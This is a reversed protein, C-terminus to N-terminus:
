TTARWASLASMPQQAHPVARCIAYWVTKLVTIGILAWCVTPATPIAHYILRVGGMATFTGRRALCVNGVIIALLALTDASGAHATHAM